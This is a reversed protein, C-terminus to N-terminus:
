YEADGNDHDSVRSRFVRYVLIQYTIVIPVFIAAVVTMVTLTRQSSSSNMLTLSASPDLSSPILNPYLGIIGTFAVCVVLVCSAFFAFVGGSRSLYVKTALLAAVAILPVVFWLPFGLFNNWLHTAFATAGLFVVAVVLVLWWFWGALARIREALPGETKASLYLTGHFTFLGAFLVGSLIGYYNLLGGFTGAYGSGTIPLGRFINGFILGFFFSAGLSCAWMITDWLVHWRVTDNKGRFEIAVGRGILSFLVILMPLYLFSFMSAYTAPFAAFTAGGATILWVENGDWVPGIARLVAGREAENKAVFPRVLVSGLDFGDLMFYVAWLLGWLIFWIVQLVM